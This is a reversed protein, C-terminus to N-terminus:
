LDFSYYRNGNSHTDKYEGGFSKCVKDALETIAICNNTAVQKNLSYELSVGASEVKAGGWIQCWVFSGTGEYMVPVAFALRLFIFFRKGM